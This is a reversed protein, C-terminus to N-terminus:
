DETWGRSNPVICGHNCGCMGMVPQKSVSSGQSLSRLFIQNNLLLDFDESQEQGTINANVTYRQLKTPM